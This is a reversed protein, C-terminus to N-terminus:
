RSNLDDPPRRKARDRTVNNVCNIVVRLFEVAIPNKEYIENSSPVTPRKTGCPHHYRPPCPTAANLTLSQPVM